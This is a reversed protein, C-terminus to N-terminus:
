SGRPKAPGNIALAFIKILSNHLISFLSSHCSAIGSLCFCYHFCNELIHQLEVVDFEFAFSAAFSFGIKIVNLSPDLLAKPAQAYALHFSSLPRYLQLNTSDFFRSVGFFFHRNM